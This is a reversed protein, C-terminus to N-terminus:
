NRVWFDGQHRGVGKRKARKVEEPVGKWGTGRRYGEGDRETGREEYGRCPADAVFLTANTIKPNVPKGGIGRQVCQDQYTLVDCQPKRLVPVRCLARENPEMIPLSIEARKIPEKRPWSSAVAYGGNSTSPSM